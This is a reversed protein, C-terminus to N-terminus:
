QKNQEMIEMIGWNEVFEQLEAKGEKVDQYLTFLESYWLVKTIDQRVTDKEGLRLLYKLIQSYIHSEYRDLKDKKQLLFAVLGMYQIGKPYNGAPIMQYHKPNIIAQKQEDTIKDFDKPHMENELRQVVRNKTKTKPHGSVRDHAKLAEAVMSSTYDENM